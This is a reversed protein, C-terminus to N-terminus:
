FTGPAGVLARFLGDIRNQFVVKEVDLPGPKAQSLAVPRGLPYL